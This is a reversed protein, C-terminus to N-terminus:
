IRGWADMSHFRFGSGMVVVFGVVIPHRVANRACVRVVCRRCVRGFDCRGVGHVAAHGRTHVITHVESLTHPAGSRKTESTFRARM